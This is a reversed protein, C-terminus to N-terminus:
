MGSHCENMCEFAPLICIDSIKNREASLCREGLIVGVCNAVLQTCLKDCTEEGDPCTGEEECHDCINRCSSEAVFCKDILKACDSSGVPQHIPPIKCNEEAEQSCEDLCGSIDTPAYTNCGILIFIFPLTYKM